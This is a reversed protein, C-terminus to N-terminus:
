QVKKVTGACQDAYVGHVPDITAGGGNSGGARIGSSVSLSLQKVTERALVLRQSNKKRDKRTKTM